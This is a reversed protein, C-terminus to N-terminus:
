KCYKTKNWIKVFRRHFRVIDLQLYVFPFHYDAHQGSLKNWRYKYGLGLTWAPVDIFNSLDVSLALEHELRKGFGSPLSEPQGNLKTKYVYGASYGGSAGAYFRRHGIQIPHFYRLLVPTLHIYRAEYKGGAIGPHEFSSAGWGAEIQWFLSPPIIGPSSLSGLPRNILPFRLTLDIGRTSVLSDSGYVNTHGKIGLVCGFPVKKPRRIHVVAPDTWVRDDIVGNSNKMVILARAVITDGEKLKIGDQTKVVVDFSAKAFYGASDSSSRVLNVHSFVFRLTSGSWGLVKYSFRNEGTGNANPFHRADATVKPNIQIRPDFDISVELTDVSSETLNEMHVTYRLTRAPAEDDPPLQQPKVELSNPDRAENITIQTSNLNTEGFAYPNEVLLGSDGGYKRLGLFGLPQLKSVTTKNSSSNLDYLDADIQVVQLSDALSDRVELVVFITQSDGRPLEIVPWEYVTGPPHTADGYDDYFTSDEFVAPNPPFVTGRFDFADTPYRM